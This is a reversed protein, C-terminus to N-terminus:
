TTLDDEFVMTRIGRVCDWTEGEWSRADFELLLDGWSGLLFFSFIGPFEVQFFMSVRLVPVRVSLRRDRFERKIYRRITLWRRGREKGNRCVDEGMSKSNISKELM